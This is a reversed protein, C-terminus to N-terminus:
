PRQVFPLFVYTTERELPLPAVAIAPLSDGTSSTSVSRTPLAAALFEDWNSDIPFSLGSHTYNQYLQADAYAPYYLGLGTARSLNVRRGQYSGSAHREYLVLQDLAVRLAGAADRLAADGVTRQVLGAWDGLDLFTEESSLALDANADIFQAQDRLRALGTRNEPDALAFRQAEIAFANAAATVGDVLAMDLAAITYPLPEEGLRVESVRAAYADVVARALDAPTTHTGIAARYREYSFASWALGESVVLYRVMGRLQHAIELTGLLCADLHLLDIPRAGGESLVLLAQRLDNPTLRAIPGSSTDWAIGNISDAHDALALYFHDAPARQQGWRVFDVLTQPSGMDIEGVPISESHDGDLVVLMSDGQGPGDYIAVVPVQAGGLGRKLRFLAGQPTTDDMYPALSGPLTDGDLYLLMTWTEEPRGNSGLVDVTLTRLESATGASDYVRLGILHPGPEVTATNLEADRTQAFVLGDLLWEYREIRVGPASAGGGGFLSITEGRVVSREGSAVITALPLAFGLPHLRQVRRNDREAVYLDGQRDLALGSVGALQGAGIGYEGWTALWAGGSSFKQIRERNANPEGILGADSVYLSGDRGVALSGPRVFRGDGSGPAGWIAQWVGATNFVQIRQNDSDAVYVRRNGDVALGGIRGFQARGSGSAGWTTIWEGGPGFKQIRNNGVDAVYINGDVDLALAGPSEFQGSAAGRVGWSELWTGDLRWRQIRHNGTDAVYLDGKSGLVIGRPGRLQGQGSGTGGWVARRVGSSTFVQVTDGALLYLADEAVALGQPDRALAHRDTDGWTLQANGQAGWRQMRQNGTDSIYLLGDRDLALGRPQQLMIREANGRWSAQWRGEATFKQIRNNGTDVVYVMGRGDLAVGAPSRFMGGDTGTTGWASLWRGDATFKQIRDNGTDAVYLDGQADVALGAPARLERDEPKDGYWASLWRGDAAFKQIRNNGTDAVYVTGHRDIAIGRPTDLQGPAWGRTGWSTLWAGTSSFKQIRHNLTDAVYVNGQSDVAVGQPGYFQGPQEGLGGWGRLFQGDRGFVLIRQEAPDAVYVQGTADVAVGTPANVASDKVPPYLAQVHMYDHASRSALVLDIQQGGGLATHTITQEHTSFSATITITEGAQVLLPTDSLSARYYPQVSGAGPATWLTQSGHASSITVRAGAVAQGDMLVYGFVCCTPVGAGPPLGGICSTPLPILEGTAQVDPPTFPSVPTQDQAALRGTPLAGLLLGVLLMYTLCRIM